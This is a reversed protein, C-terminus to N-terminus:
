RLLAGLNRSAVCLKPALGFYIKSIRAGNNVGAPIGGTAADLRNAAIACLHKAQQLEALVTMEPRIRDSSPSNSSTFSRFANRGQTRNGEGATLNDANDHHGLEGYVFVPQRRITVEQFESEDEPKSHLESDNDAWNGRFISSVNDAVPALRLCCTGDCQRLCAM